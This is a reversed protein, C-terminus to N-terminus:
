PAALYKLDYAAWMWHPRWSTVVIPEERDYARDLAATMAADSGDLLVVDSLDYTRMARDSAARLGAGPVIGTTEGGFADATATVDTISDVDVYTPVAWGIDAGELNPGLDILDDQTQEWYAAHTAPLWAAVIADFDGQAVGTWMPGADVSTLNVEYGLDD